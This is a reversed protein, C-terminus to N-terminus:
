RGNLNWIMSRYNVPHPSSDIFKKLEAQRLMPDDIDKIVQKARWQWDDFEAASEEAIRQNELSVPVRRANAAGGVYGTIAAYTYARHWTIKWIRTRQDKRIVKEFYAPLITDNTTPTGNGAVVVHHDRCTAGKDLHIGVNHTFTSRGQLKTLFPADPPAPSMQLTSVGTVGAKSGPM